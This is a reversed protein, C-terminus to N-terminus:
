KIFEDTLSRYFVQESTQSYPTLYLGIGFAYLAYLILSIIAFVLMGYSGNDLGTLGMFFLTFALIGPIIYWLAFTLQLLFLSGKEGDMLKRSATIADMIGIEPNDKLINFAQSYSYGKIIGPVILLLSWLGILINVMIILGVAKLLQRNFIQFMSKVSYAKGDVLDLLGWTYGVLFLSKAFSAVFITIWLVVLNPFLALTSGLGSTNMANISADQFLSSVGSFLSMVMQVAWIVLYMILLSGIATGWHGKLHSKADKKMESISM